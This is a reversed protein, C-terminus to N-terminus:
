SSRRSRRNKRSESVKRFTYLRMKGSIPMEEEGVSLNDIKEDLEETTLHQACILDYEEEFEKLDNFEALQSSNLSNINQYLYNLKDALRHARNILTKFFEKDEYSLIEYIDSMEVIASILSSHMLKSM